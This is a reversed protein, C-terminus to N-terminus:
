RDLEKWAAQELELLSPKRDEGTPSGGHGDDVSPKKCELVCELVKHHMSSSGAHARVFKELESWMQRYQEERALMFNIYQTHNITFRLM